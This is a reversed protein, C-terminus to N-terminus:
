KSSKGKLVKEYLNTKNIELLLSSNHEQPLSLLFFFLNLLHLSLPGQLQASPAEKRAWKVVIKGNIM